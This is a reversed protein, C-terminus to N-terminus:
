RYAELVASRDPKSGWLTLMRQTGIIEQVFYGDKELEVVLM